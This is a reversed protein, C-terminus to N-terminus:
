RAAPQTVAFRLYEYVGPLGSVDTEHEVRTQDLSRYITTAKKAALLRNLLRKAEEGSWGGSSVLPADEGVRLFLKSDPSPNSGITVLLEGDESLVLYLDDKRARCWRREPLRSHHCRVEWPDQKQGDIPEGAPALAGFLASGDIHFFRYAVGGATGEEYTLLTDGVRVARLRGDIKFKQKRALFAGPPDAEAALRREEEIEEASRRSQEELVRLEERLLGAAIPDLARAPEAGAGLGVLLMVLIPKPAKGSRPAATSAVASIPM